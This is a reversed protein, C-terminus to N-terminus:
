SIIFYIKVRKAVFFLETHFQWFLILANFSFVVFAISVSVCILGATQTDQLELDDKSLM